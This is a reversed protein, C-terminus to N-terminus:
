IRSSITSAPEAGCSRTCCPVTSCCDNVGNGVSLRLNRFLDDLHTIATLFNGEPAYKLPSRHVSRHRCRERRDVLHGLESRCVPRHHHLSLDESESQRSSMPVGDSESDSRASDESSPDASSAFRGLSQLLLCQPQRSGIPARCEADLLFSSIPFPFPFTFTLSVILNLRAFVSTGVSVSVSVKITVGVRVRVHVGHCTPSRVYIPLHIPPWPNKEM